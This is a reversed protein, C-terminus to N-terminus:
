HCGAPNDGAVELRKLDMVHLAGVIGRLDDPQSIQLLLIMTQREENIVGVDMQFYLQFNGDLGTFDDAYQVILDQRLIFVGGVRLGLFCEILEADSQHEAKVCLIGADKAGLVHEMVVHGLETGTFEPLFEDFEEADQVGLRLVAVRIFIFLQQGKRIDVSAHEGPLNLNRTDVLLNARQNEM